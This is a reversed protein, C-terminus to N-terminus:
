RSEVIVLRRAKRVLSEVEPMTGLDILKFLLRDFEAELQEIQAPGRAPRRAPAANAGNDWTISIASKPPRGPGRKKVGPPRGPKRGRRVKGTLGKSSKVKYVLSGSISGSHGAQAWAENITTETAQPNRGLQEEIFEMKTPGATKTKAM